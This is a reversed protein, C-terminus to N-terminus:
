KRYGEKREVAVILDRNAQEYENLESDSVVHHEMNRYWDYQMYFPYYEGNENFAYGHRAYIENRAHGLLTQFDYEEVLYLAYVEEETLYRENSDPFVFGNEDFVGQEKSAEEVSETGTEEEYAATTESEEGFMGNMKQDAFFLVVVQTLLIIIWTKLKKKAEKFEEETCAKKTKTKITEGAAIITQDMASFNIVKVSQSIMQKLELKVDSNTELETQYKEFTKEYEELKVSLRNNYSIDWIKRYIGVGYGCLLGACFITYAIQAKAALPNEWIERMYYMLILCVMGILMGAFVHIRSSKLEVAGVACLKNIEIRCYNCRNQIEKLRLATSECVKHFEQKWAREISNKIEACERQCEKPAEDLFGIPVIYSEEIGRVRVPYDEQKECVIPYRDRLLYPFQQIIPNNCCKRYLEHYARSAETPYTYINQSYQTLEELVKTNGDTAHYDRRNEVVWFIPRSEKWEQDLWKQLDSM